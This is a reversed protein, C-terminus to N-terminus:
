PELGLVRKGDSHRYRTEEMADPGAMARFAQEHFLEDRLIWTFTRRVDPPVSEPDNVITEIRELRMKEAHAGVAAGTTFSRIGPLTHQWYRAEANSVDPEIGRKKLLELVWEAHMAEQKAIVRLIRKSTEDPAHNEAFDLIRKSATAEGRYQKVLWRNFREPDAKTVSWWAESNSQVM